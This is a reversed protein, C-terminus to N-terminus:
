QILSQKKNGDQKPSQIPKGKIQKKIVALSQRRAYRAAQKNL